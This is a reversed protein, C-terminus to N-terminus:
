SKSRHAHGLVPAVHRRRLDHRQQLCLPATPEVRKMPVQPGRQLEDFRRAHTPFHRPEHQPIFPSLGRPPREIQQGTTLQLNTRDVGPGRGAHPLQEVAHHGRRLRLERRTEGAKEIRLGPRDGAREHAQAELNLFVLVEFGVEGCHRAEITRYFICRQRRQAGFVAGARHSQERARIGAVRGATGKRRVRPEIFPRLPV